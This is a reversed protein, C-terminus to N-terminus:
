GFLAKLDEDMEFDPGGEVPRDKEKMKGFMGDISLEACKGRMCSYFNFRVGNENKFEVKTKTNAGCYVCKGAM